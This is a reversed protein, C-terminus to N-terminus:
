FSQADAQIIFVQTMRRIFCDLSFITLYSEVKPELPPWFGQKICMAAFAHLFVGDFDLLTCLSGEKM